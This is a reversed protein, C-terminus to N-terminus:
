IEDSYIINVSSDLMALADHRNKMGDSPNYNLADIPPPLCVASAHLRHKHIEHMIAHMNQPSIKSSFDSFWILHANEYSKIWKKLIKPIDNMQNQPANPSLCNDPIDCRTRILEILLDEYSLSLIKAAKDQNNLAIEKTARDARAWKVLGDLDIKRQTKSSKIFNVQKFKRFDWYLETAARAWIDKHSPDNQCPPKWQLTQFLWAELQKITKQPSANRAIIHTGSEDYALLCSANFLPTLACLRIATQVLQCDKANSSIRMLPGADILCILYSTECTENQISSLTHTKALGRWFIHKSCDSSNWPRIREIDTDNQNNKLAHISQILNTNKAIIKHLCRNHLPSHAVTVNLEHHTLAHFVNDPDSLSCSCGFIHSKGFRGATLSINFHTSAHPPFALPTNSDPCLSLKSAIIWDTHQIFLPFPLENDLHVSLTFPTNTLCIADPESLSIHIANNQFAAWQILLRAYLFALYAILLANIAALFAAFDAYDFYICAIAACGLIFSAIFSWAGNLSLYPPHHIANSSLNPSNFSTSPPRM